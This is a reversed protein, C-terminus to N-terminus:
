TMREPSTVAAEHIELTIEQTSTLERIARMSEYLGEGELELPHTNVFLHPPKPFTTSAQIGKWRFMRSLEIELNLRAAAGFMAAPTELGLIRSRGLVEYAVVQADDLTVIPQYHPVVSQEVMLRDFQVLAFAKDYVDACVTQSSSVSSEKQVRLVVDAIQVIDDSRLPVPELVRTGNVFTGNTSGLDRLELQGGTNVIEAHVSSVANCPLCLNLTPRRGIRFPSCNIPVHRLPEGPVMQGSLFWVCQTMTGDRAPASASGATPAGADESSDAASM